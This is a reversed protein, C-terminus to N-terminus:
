LDKGRPAGKARFNVVVDCGLVGAIFVVTSVRLNQKANFIRWLTGSAVGRQRLDRETLGHDEMQQRILEAIRDIVRKSESSVM